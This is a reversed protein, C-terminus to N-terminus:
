RDRSRGTLVVTVDSDPSEVGTELLHEWGVLAVVATSCVDFGRHALRERSPRVAEPDIAVVRGGSAEIAHHVQTERAPAPIRIGPALDDDVPSDTTQLSGAGRLQVAYLRPVCDLLGVEVLRAFGRYLGLLLTGHGVPLIVAEPVHGGKDGILEWALTATGEYFEPRWAHSAYWGTDAAVAAAAVDSRSGEIPRVDAGTAQIADITSGTADAPVFITATIDANAAHTAIALGANGSSDEKLQEVGLAVARSLTVAAGRDKFSGTPNCTELKFQAAFAPADVLPTGGAGIDIPPGSPLAEAFEWIGGVLTTPLREPQSTELLDLPAGCACRHPESPSAEYRRNCQGCRTGVPESRM